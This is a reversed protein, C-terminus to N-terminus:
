LCAHIVKKEKKDERKESEPHLGLLSYSKSLVQSYGGGLHGAWDLEQEREKSFQSLM